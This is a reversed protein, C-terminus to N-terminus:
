AGVVYPLEARNRVPHLYDKQTYAKETELGPATVAIVYGPSESFLSRPSHKGTAEPHTVM